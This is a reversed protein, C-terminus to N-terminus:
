ATKKNEKKRREKIKAKNKCDTNINCVYHSISM